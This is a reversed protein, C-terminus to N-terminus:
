SGCLRDLWRDVIAHIEERRSTTSVRENAAELDPIELARARLSSEEGNECWARIVLLAVRESLQQEQTKVARGETDDASLEGATM